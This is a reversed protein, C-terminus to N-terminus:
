FTDTSAFYVTSLLEDYLKRVVSNSHDVSLCFQVAAFELENTTGINPIQLDYAYELTYKDSENMEDKPSNRLVSMTLVTINCESEIRYKLHEIQSPERVNVFIVSAINKDFLSNIADCVISNSGDDFECWLTKLKSLLTRYKEDKAAISVELAERYAVPEKNVIDRVLAKCCDITSEERVNMMHKSCYEIFTSKGSGQVGGILVVIPFYEKNFDVCFATLDKDSIDVSEASNMRHTFELLIHNKLIESVQSFYESEIKKM